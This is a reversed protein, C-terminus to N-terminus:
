VAGDFKVGGAAMSPAVTVVAGTGEWMALQPIWWLGFVVPGITNGTNFPDLPVHKTQSM